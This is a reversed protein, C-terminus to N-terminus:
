KTSIMMRSAFYNLHYGMWEHRLAAMRINMNMIGCGNM